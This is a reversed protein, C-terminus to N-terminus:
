FSRQIKEIGDIQLRSIASLTNAMGEIKLYGYDGDRSTGRVILYKAHTRVHTLARARTHSYTHVCAHTPIHAHRADRAHTYAHRADHM